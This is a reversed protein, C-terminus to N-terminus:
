ASRASARPVDVAGDVVIRNGGSSRANVLARHAAALLDQTSHMNHDFTAIGVSVSQAEGAVELSALDKQVRKAYIGAGALEIGSLISIFVGDHSYRASMNMGRTRRKLVRGVSLLLRSTADSGHRSSFRSFQDFSFLVVAVDRGREAAAFESNLTQHAVRLTPLGTSADVYAKTVGQEHGIQHFYREIFMLMFTLVAALAPVTVNSRERLFPDPVLFTLGVAACAGVAATAATAAIPFPALYQKV